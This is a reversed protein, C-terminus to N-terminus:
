CESCLATASACGFSTEEDPSAGCIYANFAFFDVNFGANLAIVSLIPNGEADFPGSPSFGLVTGGSGAQAGWQLEQIFSDCEINPRVVM